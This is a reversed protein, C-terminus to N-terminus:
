SMPDANQPHPISSCQRSLTHFATDCFSAKSKTLFSNVFYGKKRIIDNTFSKPAYSLQSLAQIANLLDPTRDGEDGGSDIRTQSNECVRKKGKRSNHVKKFLQRSTTDNLGAFTLFGSKGCFGM